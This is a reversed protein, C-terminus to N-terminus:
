VRVWYKFQLPRPSADLNLTGEDLNLTEGDLNLHGGDLKSRQIILPFLGVFDLPIDCWFGRSYHNLYFFVEVTPSSRKKQDEGIKRRFFVETKQSSKKRKQDKNLITSPNVYDESLNLWTQLLTGGHLIKSNLYQGFGARFAQGSKCSQM